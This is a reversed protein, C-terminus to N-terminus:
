NVWNRYPLHTYYKPRSDLRVHLWYVGLGSTSIWMPQDSLNAFVATGLVRLLEHQQAMSATQLFAMLHPYDGSLRQPVVLFADRGLNHFSIVSQEPQRSLQGAFPRINTPVRALSPSDIAVFEYPQNLTNKTIPPMEWFIAPYSVATLMALYFDRFAADTRWGALVDAFSMPSGDLLLKFKIGTPQAVAEQVTSWMCFTYNEIREWALKGWYLYM